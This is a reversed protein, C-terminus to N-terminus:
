RWNSKIWDLHSFKAPDRWGPFVVMIADRPLETGKPWGKKQFGYIGSESGANWGAADPMKHWFWGQDDAFEFKAIKDAAELSFDSWVDPRYGARLMWVSGNMPCPNSANVNQLIVFPEPRDFLPDLPGTVIADLDMSVIRDGPAIGNQAQWEPDFARLRCFCGKIETLHEDRPDPSFVHWRYEGKLHRAVGARLRDVYEPGYKNGWFFPGIHLV